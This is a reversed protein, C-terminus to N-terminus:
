PFQVKWHELSTYGRGFEGYTFRAQMFYCFPALDRPRSPDHFVEKGNVYDRLLETWGPGPSDPSTGDGGWIQWGSWHPFRDKNEDAYATLAQGISRVNAGCATLRSAERSKGLAPLMLAVLVGIVAIVVLLEILSFAPGAPRDQVRLEREGPRMMMAVGLM